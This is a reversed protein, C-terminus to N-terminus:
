TATVYRQGALQRILGRIELTMLTSSVISPPLEATAILEDIHQPNPGVLDLIAV